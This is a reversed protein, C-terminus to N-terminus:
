WTKFNILFNTLLHSFVLIMNDFYDGNEAVVDHLRLVFNTSAHALKETKITQIYQELKAITQSTQRYVRRQLVGLPVFGRANLDPLYPSWDM